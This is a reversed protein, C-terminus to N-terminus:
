AAVHSAQKARQRRKVSVSVLRHLSVIYNILLDLVWTVSRILDTFKTHFPSLRSSNM